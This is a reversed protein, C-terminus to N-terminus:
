KPMLLSVSRGNARPSEIFGHHFLRVVEEVRERDMLWTVRFSSTAIGFYRVNLERLVQSGQLVKNHSATIGAGIISVAAASDNWRVPITKIAVELKADPSYEGEVGGDYDMRNPGRPPSTSNSGPSALDDM